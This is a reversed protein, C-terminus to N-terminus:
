IQSIFIIYVRFLYSQFRCTGFIFGLIAMKPKIRLPMKGPEYFFHMFFPFCFIHIHLALAKSYM